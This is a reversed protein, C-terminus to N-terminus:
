FVTEWEERVWYDEDVLFVRKWKDFSLCPHSSGFVLLDGIRLDLGPDRELLAHQDMLDRTRLGGPTFDVRRGQRYQAFPQPLGADFAVDRKGFGVVALGPEPLSQVLACLELASSLGGDLRAALPERRRLAAYAQQYIGRDQTVYCGPRIVHRVGSLGADRLQRSVIDFWVTGAGTLLAEPAGAFDGNRLLAGCVTVARQILAQIAAIDAQEDAGHTVGEYFAVGALALGPLEAIREALAYAQREDRCGCRGGPMGMELLVSIRQQRAAFFDSLQRANDVSDVCCHLAARRQGLLAALLAMNARGLVQNAIIVNTAGAAVAAQAQFASAVGLGWAGAALQRRFIAPTMTTKGHPALSVEMADAFGQMWRINGDLAAEKIVLAPLCADEHLINAGGEARFMLAAKHRAVAPEFQKTTM